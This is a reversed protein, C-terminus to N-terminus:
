SVEVYERSRSRIVFGGDSDGRLWMWNCSKYEGKRGWAKVRSGDGEM